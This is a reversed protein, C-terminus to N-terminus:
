PSTNVLLDSTRVRNLRQPSLSTSNARIARTPAITATILLQGSEPKHKTQCGRRYSCSRDRNAVFDVRLSEWLKAELM